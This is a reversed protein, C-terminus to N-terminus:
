LVNGVPFVLVDVEQGAEIPPTGAPLDIFANCYLLSRLMSPKQGPLVEVNWGKGTWWLRGRVMRRSNSIKAFGNVCCANIRQYETQQGLLRKIAPYVFLHYNVACASPNGSLWFLLCNGKLAAGTHSGPQLEVSQYLIRAELAHMIADMNNEGNEFTGGTFVAVDLQNMMSHLQSIMKDRGTIGGYIVSSVVGGDRDILASLMPGNSDRMQGNQLKMEQCIINEALCVVATEPRRVTEVQYFDYAALLAVAAYDLKTGSPLLLEDRCFDEGAEKINTGPKIKELIKVQQQHALTKEGPVVAVTGEPLIGGTPVSVAQGYELGFCPFSDLKLEAILKYSSGIKDPGEGLAYGDVASQARLPMHYPAYVPKRLVRNVAQNLPVMEGAMTDCHDTLIQRAHELSINSFVKTRRLVTGIKWFSMSSFSMNQM